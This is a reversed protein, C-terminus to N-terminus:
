DAMKKSLQPGTLKARRSERRFKAESESANILQAGIVEASTGLAARVKPLRVRRASVML